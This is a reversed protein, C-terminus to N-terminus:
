RMWHQAAHGSWGWRPQVQAPARGWPEPAQTLWERWPPLETDSELVLLLEGGQDDASAGRLATAAQLGRATFMVHLQDVLWRSVEDWAGAGLEFSALTHRTSGASGPVARRQWVRRYQRRETIAIGTRGWGSQIVDAAAQRAPGHEYSLFGAEDPFGYCCIYDAENGDASEARLLTAALLADCRWLIGIHDSYWRQLAAHDGDQSRTSVLNFYSANM